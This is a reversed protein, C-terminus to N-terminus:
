SNKLADVIDNDYYYQKGDYVIYSPDVAIEFEKNNKIVIRCFYCGEKLKDEPIEELEDMDIKLIEDIIGSIIKSDEIKNEDGIIGYQIFEINGREDDLEDLSIIQSEKTEKTESQEVQTYEKKHSEVKEKKECGCLCVVLMICIILRKNM